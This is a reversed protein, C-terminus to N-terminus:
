SVNRVSVQSRAKMSAGSLARPCFEMTTSSSSRHFPYLSFNEFWLGEESKYRQVFHFSFASLRFGVGGLFLDNMLFSLGFCLYNNVITILVLMLKLM